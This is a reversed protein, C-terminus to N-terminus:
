WIGQSCFVIYLSLSTFDIKAVQHVTAWWAGGDMPNELCACQLPNGNGEGRSRGSGPISGLDGATCASARVESGGPFGLTCCFCWFSQLLFGPNVEPETIWFCRLKSRNSSKGLVCTDWFNFLSSLEWKERSGHYPYGHKCRLVCYSPKHLSVYTSGKM